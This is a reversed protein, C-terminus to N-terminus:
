YNGMQEKVQRLLGPYAQQALQMNKELSELCDNQYLKELLQRDAAPVHDSIHILHLYFHEPIHCMRVLDVIPEVVYKGYYLLAELYHGRKIYKEVRAHQQYLDEIAKLREAMGTKIQLWDYDRYAVVGAKDFIVVPVEVKDGKVFHSEEPARSHSQISVDLILYPGFEKLRYFKTRIKPHGVQSEINMELSGLDKLRSELLTFIDEEHGDAVDLVLDIDSYADVQNTGDSGELWMAHVRHDELFTEKLHNIIEERM